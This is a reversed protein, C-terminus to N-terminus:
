RDYTMGLVEGMKSIKQQIASDGGLLPVGAADAARNNLQFIAIVAAADIVGSVGVLEVLADRASNIAEGGGALVTDAYVLLPEGYEVGADGSGDLRTSAIDVKQESEAGGM